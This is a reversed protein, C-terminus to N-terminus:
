RGDKDKMFFCDEIEHDDIGLYNTLAERFTEYEKGFWVGYPSTPGGWYNEYFTIYENWYGKNEVFSDFPEYVILLSQAVFFQYVLESTFDVM